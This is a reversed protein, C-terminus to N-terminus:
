RKESMVEDGKMITSADNAISNEGTVFESM